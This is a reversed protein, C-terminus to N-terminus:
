QSGELKISYGAVLFLESIPVNLYDAFKQLHGPNAKRKGIIIRLITATDIDTLESFKKDIFKL